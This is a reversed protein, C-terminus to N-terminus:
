DILGESQLDHFVENISSKKYGQLETHTYDLEGKALVVRLIKGRLQRRSGEFPSQKVYHKSKTNANEGNKALSAGYDMLAYYWDRYNEEPLTREVYQLIQKDTIKDSDSFFFHIFVRRINTEIFVAKKNFAFSLIAGATYKGIGPFQILLKEDDPLKGGFDSVVIKSTKHLYLARRNYGLGSWLSLVETISAKSLSEFNPYKQIFALYKPIVRETQTQQLMLESVLIAYPDHTDRWPFDRRNKEYFTKITKKFSTVHHM